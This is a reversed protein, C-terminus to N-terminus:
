RIRKYLFIQGQANRLALRGNSVAYEYIWRRNFQPNYLILIKDRIQLTGTTSRGRGSDLHFRSGQIRLQEGRNSLWIGNIHNPTPFFYQPITQPTYPPAYYSNNSGIGMMANMMNLMADAIAPRQDAATVMNPIIWLFVLLYPM